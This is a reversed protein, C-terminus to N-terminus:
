MSPPSGPSDPQREQLRPLIGIVALAAITLFMLIWSVVDGYEFSWIVDVAMVLLLPLGILTRWPRLPRERAFFDAPALSIYLAIAWIPMLLITQLGFFSLNVRSLLHHIYIAPVLAYIGTIIVPGFGTNPRLLSAIGWLVLAILCLYMLRIISNWVVLAIFVVIAVIISFATWGKAATEANIIIPDTGFASNLESLPIVQYRGNNNLVHLERKMLLFGQDYQTRDIETLVGTTDIAVFTRDSSEGQNDFFILPQQADVETVGNRIIIEPITGDEFSTRIDNGMALFTIGVGVSALFTVTLTFISFFLIAIGVSKQASKRYFTFSGLPLVFGSFFQGLEGLWGSGPVNTSAQSPNSLENM